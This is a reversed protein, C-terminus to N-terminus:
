WNPIVSRHSATIFLNLFLFSIARDYSQIAETFKNLAQLAAHVYDGRRYQEIARYFLVDSESTGLSRVWNILSNMMLLSIFSFWIDSPFLPPLRIMLSANNNDHSPRYDVWSLPPLRIMLPANNNDHPPQRMNIYQIPLHLGNCHIRHHYKTYIEHATDSMFQRFPVTPTRPGLCSPRRLCRRRGRWQQSINYLQVINRGFTILDFCFRFGLKVM